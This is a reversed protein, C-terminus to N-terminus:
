MEMTAIENNWYADYATKVEPPLESSNMFLTNLLNQLPTITTITEFEVQEFRLSDETLYDTDFNM